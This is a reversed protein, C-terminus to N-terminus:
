ASTMAPLSYKEEGAFTGYMVMFLRGDRLPLINGNTLMELQGVEDYPRLDRPFGLFRM